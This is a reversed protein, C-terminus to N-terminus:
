NKRTYKEILEIAEKVRTDDRNEIGIIARGVMARIGTEEIAKITDEIFAYMDNFTTTGSKIMEICALYSGYYIDEGTLTDEIPWIKNELWDMLELDDAYGRFLTMASHNHTNILGPMVINKNADIVKDAKEEINDSISTIIDDQIFIDKLGSKEKNNVDIFYGNKILLSAM